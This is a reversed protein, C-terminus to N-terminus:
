GLAAFGSPPGYSFAGASFRAVAAGPTYDNFNLYWSGASVVFGGTNTVPNSTGSYVGNKSVWLKNLTADFAFGLVDGSTYAALTGVQNGDYFLEGSGYYVGFSITNSPTVGPRTGIPHSLQSIGHVCDNRVSVLIEAYSKGVFPATARAGNAAASNSTATLSGNSLLTNASKDLPNWTVGPGGRGGLVATPHPFM